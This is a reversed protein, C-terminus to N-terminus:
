LKDSPLFTLVTTRRKLSISDTRWQKEENFNTSLPCRCRASSPPSSKKLDSPSSSLHDMLGQRRQFNLSNYVPVVIVMAMVVDVEGV